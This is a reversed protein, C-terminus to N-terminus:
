RRGPRRITWRGPISGDQQGFAAALMALYGFRRLQVPHGLDHPLEAAQRGGGEARRGHDGPPGIWGLERAKSLRVGLIVPSQAVSKLGQVRHSTDYLEVWLSSAPWVADMDPAQAGGLM